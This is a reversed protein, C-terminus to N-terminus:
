GGCRVSSRGGGPAATGIPMGARSIRSSCLKATRELVQGFAAGLDAAPAAWTGDARQVPHVILSRRTRQICPADGASCNGAARGRSARRSRRVRGVAHRLDFETIPLRARDVRERNAADHLSGAATEVRDIAAAASREGADARRRSDHDLLRDPMSGLASPRWGHRRTGRCRLDQRLGNEDRVDAPRERHGRWRAAPKPSSRMRECAKRSTIRTRM